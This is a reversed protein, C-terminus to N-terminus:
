IVPKHIERELLENMGHLLENIDIPKGCVKDIGAIKYEEVNDVSLDATVAIIPVDSKGNGMDRVIQTATIGDMVPMRIDMFVVDFTNETIKQVAEKGNDALTVEHKLKKFIASLIQQNIHNDDTVLINLKQDAMWENSIVQESNPLIEHKANEYDMTFWVTTGKGLASNVDINGGLLEVLKKTISLGLGTGGYTRSISSDAQSFPEFLHNQAEESLGIGTDSVSCFLKKGTSLESLKVEVKVYGKETFKLANSLLNSLIQTLRLKDSHIGQPVSPDFEVTLELKKQDFKPRFLNVAENISKKLDFDVADLELKGAELKSQDLIENLIVLLNRASIDVNRAWDLQSDSLDSKLLLDTMGIVGAMPTRIEHSMAALFDSKANNAKKAAEYQTKLEETREQVERELSNALSLLEKEARDREEIRTGIIELLKNVSQALDSLEDSENRRPVTLKKDSPNDPDVSALTLSMNALPEALMYFFVVSLILALIFNRLIGLSLLRVSRELFDVAMVHSDAVVKIEGVVLEIDGSYNLPISFEQLGGFLYESVWRYSSEKLEKTQHTLLNGLDDSISVDVISEYEFLGQAVETALDLNIDYAAQAAAKHVTSVVQTITTEVAKKESGLDFYVQLLNLTLGVVLSILVVNRAQKYAIRDRWNSDRRLLKRM